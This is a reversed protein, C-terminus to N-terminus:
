VQRGSTMSQARGSGDRSLVGAVAAQGDDLGGRPAQPFVTRMVCREGPEDRAAARSRRPGGSMSRLLGRCGETPMRFHRRPPRESPPRPRRRMGAASDCLLLRRRVEISCLGGTYARMFLACPQDRFTCLDGLLVPPGDDHDVPPLDGRVPEHYRVGRDAPPVGQLRSFGPHPQVDQVAVAPRHARQGPLEAEVAAGQLALDVGLLRPPIWV